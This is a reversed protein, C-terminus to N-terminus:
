AGRRLFEAIASMDEQGLGAAIAEAVVKRGAAFQDMRAGVRGALADILTMDKAVLDLVFAAPTQGPHVFADRKYRTFPSATASNAFVEYAMERPVGAKEALVLAESLGQNVAGVVTNVALKMVAGTGLEGLHFVRTGLADLVPRARALADADGGVMFTLEGREVLHVSGSVPADLLAASRDSVLPALGRVTEPDITSTELVVTGSRLGEALEPYVAKVAADDALSVIVVESQAAAEAPSDAVPSGTAEARERTRNYVVVEHGADRLRKAMAAGMRGAGVIGIRM